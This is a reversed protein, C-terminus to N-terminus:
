TDEKLIISSKKSIMKKRNNESILKNLFNVLNEITFKRFTTYMVFIIYQMM